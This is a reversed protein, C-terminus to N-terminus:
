SNKKKHDHSPHCIVCDNLQIVKHDKNGRRHPIAVQETHHWHHRSKRAWCTTHHLSNSHSSTNSTCVRVRVCARVTSPLSLFHSSGCHWTEPAGLLGSQICEAEQRLQCDARKQSCTHANTRALAFV